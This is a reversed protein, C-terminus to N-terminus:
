WVAGGSKFGRGETSVFDGMPSTNEAKIWCFCIKPTKNDREERLEHKMRTSAAVQRTLGVLFM